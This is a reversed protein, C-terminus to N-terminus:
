FIFLYVFLVSPNEKREKKYGNFVNVFFWKMLWRGFHINYGFFHIFLQNGEKNM